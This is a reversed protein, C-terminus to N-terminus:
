ALLNMEGENTGPDITSALGFWTQIASCEAPSKGCTDGTLYTVVIGYASNQCHPSLDAHPRVLQLRPRLSNFLQLCSIIFSGPQMVEAHWDSELFSTAREQLSSQSPLTVTAGGSSTNLVTNARIYTSTRTIFTYMYMCVGSVWSKLGQTFTHHGDDGSTSLERYIFANRRTVHFM